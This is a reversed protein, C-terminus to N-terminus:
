DCLGKDAVGRSGSPLLILRAGGLDVYQLSDGAPTLVGYGSWRPPTAGGWGFDDETRVEWTRGAHTLPDVWCHGVVLRVVEVVPMGAPLGPAHDSCQAIDTIRWLDEIRTVRVATHVGGADSTLATVDGSEAGDTLRLEPEDRGEPALAYAETPFHRSDTVTARVHEAEGCDLLSAGGWPLAPGEDVCVQSGDVSWATSEFEELDQRSSEITMRARVSGDARMLFASDDGDLEVRRGAGPGVWAEAAELPTSYAPVRPPTHPRTEVLQGTPCSIDRPDGGSEPEADDGSKVSLAVGVTVVAVAAIVGVGALVPRIRQRLQRLPPRDDSVKNM